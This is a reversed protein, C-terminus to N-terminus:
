SGAGPCPAPICACMLYWKTLEQEERVMKVSVRKSCVGCGMQGDTCRVWVCEYVVGKVKKNRKIEIFKNETVKFKGIKSEKHQTQHHAPRLIMVCFFSHGNCNTLGLVLFFCYFLQQGQDEYFCMLGSNRAKALSSSINEM